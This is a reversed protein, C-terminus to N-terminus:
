PVARARWRLRGGCRLATSRLPQLISSAWRRARSNRHDNQVRNRSDNRRQEQDDDNRTRDSRMSM